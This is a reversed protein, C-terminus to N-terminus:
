LLRMFQANVLTYGTKDAGRSVLRYLIIIIKCYGFDTDGSHFETVNIRHFQDVRFLGTQFAVARKFCFCFRNFTRTGNVSLFFLCSFAQKFFSLNM